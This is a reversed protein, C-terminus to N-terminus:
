VIHNQPFLLEIGDEPTRSCCKQCCCLRQCWYCRYCQWCCRRQCWRLNKYKQKYQVWTNFEDQNRPHYLTKLWNAFCYSAFILVFILSLSALVIRIISNIKCSTESDSIPSSTTTSKESKCTLGDLPELNDGFTHCVLPIILSFAAAINWTLRKNGIKLFKFDEESELTDNITGLSDKLKVVVEGEDMNHNAANHNDQAIALNCQLDALNRRLTKVIDNHKAHIETININGDKIKDIDGKMLIFKNDSLQDPLGRWTDNINWQGIDEISGSNRLIGDLKKTWIDIPVTVIPNDWKYIEEYLKKARGALLSIGIIVTMILLIVSATVTYKKDTLRTTAITYLLDMEAIVAIIPLFNIWEEKERSQGSNLQIIKVIAYLSAATGSFGVAVLHCTQICKNGCGPISKGYRNMVYYFNDGFFYFCVAVSQILVIILKMGKEHKSENENKRCILCILNTVFISIMFILQGGLVGLAIRGDKNTLRIGARTITNLM